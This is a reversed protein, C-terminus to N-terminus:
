WGRVYQGFAIGRAAAVPTIERIFRRADGYYGATPKIPPHLRAWYANFQEMLLERVYKAVMSALAVPMYAQEAEVTFDVIWPERGAAELRYRSCEPRAFEVVLHREPFALMLLEQYNVRGGLRDVHLHLRERGAAQGITQMLAMIQELLVAAKNKTAALRLNFLNEPVVRAALQRCAVGGEAMHRALREAAGECASGQPDLPLARELLAYWPILRGHEGLDVGLANLLHDLREHPTQTARAFALVSRELSCIGRNRDFVEKSDGVPLRSEGKRKSGPRVLARRLLKWFDGEAHEDTVQWLSAGVTLPGLLPGYGAEDIGAVWAM